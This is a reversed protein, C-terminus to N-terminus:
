QRHQQGAENLIKSFDSNEFVAIKAVFKSSAASNEVGDLTLNQGGAISTNSTVTAVKKAEEKM